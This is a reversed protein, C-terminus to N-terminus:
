EINKKYKKRIAYNIKLWISRHIKPKKQVILVFKLIVDNEIFDKETKMM